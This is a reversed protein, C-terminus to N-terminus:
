LGMLLVQWARALDGCDLLAAARHHLRFGATGESVEQACGSLEPDARLADDPLREPIAEVNALQGLHNGTLVPSTRISEPLRDVGIGRNRLPKPLGFLNEVGVRCYWDGGLRAVLDLGAQDLGGSGERLGERVHMRVVEALVLSGAGPHGGLSVVRQVRCELQVPSERVRPPRVLGSPIATLGSKVFEDVGAPYETSALSQQYVMAHDVINIVVEPVEGINGLTHKTTGDRMRRVPSFVCVPPNHSVLNFYSFPSLNVRGAADVTSALCIPRPAVAYKILNDLAPDGADVHVTKPPTKAM